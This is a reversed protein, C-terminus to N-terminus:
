CIFLLSLSLFVVVFDVFTPLKSKVMLLLLLSLLSVILIFYKLLLVVVVVFFALSLDPMQTHNMMM